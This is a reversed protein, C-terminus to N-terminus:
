DGGEEPHGARLLARYRRHGALLRERQSSLDAPSVPASIYVASQGPLWPWNWIAGALLPREGDLVERARDGLWLARAEAASIRYADDEQGRRFACVGNWRRRVAFGTSDQLCRGIRRLPERSRLRLAQQWAAALDQGGILGSDAVATASAHDADELVKAAMAIRQRARLGPRRRRASQLDLLGVGGGALRVFNGRHLDPHHIGLDALRAAIVAMEGVTVPRDEEGGVPLGRTALISVFPVGRRRVAAVALPEPAELDTAATRLLALLRAEHTAPLSRFVYRLRDKGRPFAMVKLFVTGVGPLEGQGVSRVLRTQVVACDPPLRGPHDVCWAIWAALTRAADRPLTAVDIM